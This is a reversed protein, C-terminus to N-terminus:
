RNTTITSKSDEQYIVAKVRGTGSSEVVGRNERLFVVIQDGKVINRGERLVADGIMVIKQTDQYFVAENATAIRDGLNVTVKGKAEIKELDTLEGDNQFSRVENRPAKRYYLKIQDSSIVKDGQTAIANGSFVVLKKENYADLRDSVIQIPQGRDIKQKKAVIDEANLNMYLFFVPLCLIIAIKKM